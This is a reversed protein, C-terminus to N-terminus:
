RICGMYFKIERELEDKNYQEIKGLETLERNVKIEAQKRKSLKTCADCRAFLKFEKEEFRKGCINCKTM